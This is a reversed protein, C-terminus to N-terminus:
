LNVGRLAVPNQIFGDHVIDMFLQWPYIWRFGHIHWTMLLKIMNIPQKYQYIDVYIMEESSDTTANRNASSGQVVKKLVKMSPEPSDDPKFLSPTDQTM